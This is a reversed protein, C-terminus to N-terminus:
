AIARIQKLNCLQAISVDWWRESGALQNFREESLDIRSLFDDISRVGVLRLVPAAAEKSTARLFLEVVGVSHSYVICNPSWYYGFPSEQKADLFSRLFLLFDVQFLNPFGVDQRTARERIMDAVVSLRRLKLRDNRGVDISVCRKNFVRYSQISRETGGLASAFVYQHELFQAAEAYRRHQIYFAIVYLFLEYLLFRFNDFSGDIWSSVTAPRDGFPIVQELFSVIEETVSQSAVYATAFAVFDLFENRYTIFTGISQVVVEDVPANSNSKWDIRLDDFCAALSRLYEQCKAVSYPREALVAEKFADLKFATRLPGANPQEVFSPLPGLPPKSIAPRGFINRLLKDFESLFADEKSLDIYIRNQLFVPLCPAGDGDRESLIPIFKEQVVSEYVEKSVIQSETGVGGRREDAKQKYARDCIILVRDVDPDSVMKEMFAHKDQGEKLEWKDLVTDVGNSVLQGALKLVWAEHQPTTWSYSIFVKPSKVPGSM